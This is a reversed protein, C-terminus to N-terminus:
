VEGKEGLTSSHSYKACVVMNEQIRTIKVRQNKLSDTLIYERAQMGRDIEALDTLFLFKQEGTLQKVSDRIERSLAIADESTDLLPLRYGQGQSRSIRNLTKQIHSM